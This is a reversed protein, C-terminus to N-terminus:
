ARNVTGHEARWDAEVRKAFAGLRQRLQRTLRTRALKLTQLVLRAPFNEAKVDIALGLQTRGGRIERLDLVALGDLGGTISRLAMAEPRDFTVVEVDILRDRGHLKTAITWAMGVGPAALDDKRTIRAGRAEARRKFDAFDTCAAFVHGIPADLEETHSIQM